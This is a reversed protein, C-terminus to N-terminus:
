GRGEERGVEVGGWDAEMAPTSGPSPKRAAKGSVGNVGGNATARAKSAQAAALLRSRETKITRAPPSVEGSMGYHITVNPLM